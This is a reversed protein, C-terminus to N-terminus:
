IEMWKEKGLHQDPEKTISAKSGDPFDEENQHSQQEWRCRLALLTTQSLEGFIERHNLAEPRVADEM